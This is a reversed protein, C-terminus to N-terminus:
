IGAISIEAYSSNYFRIIQLAGPIQNPNLRKIAPSLLAQGDLQKCISPYVVQRFKRLPVLTRKWDVFYYYANPDRSNTWSLKSKRLVQIPGMCVAEYFSYHRSRGASDIRSFFTRNINESSDYYRISRVQHAPYITLPDIESKFMVLENMRVCMQGVKVSNDKLVIAGPYWAQPMAAVAVFCFYITLLIKM